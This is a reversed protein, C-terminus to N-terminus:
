ADLVVSLLVVTCSVFQKSCNVCIVFVHMYTFVCMCAHMRMCECVSYVSIKYLMVTATDSVLITERKNVLIKM